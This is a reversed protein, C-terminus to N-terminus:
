LVDTNIESFSEVILDAQSLIESRYTSTLAICKMGAKKAAQIGYPSDEFVLCEIPKARMMNAAYIFLDPEPKSVYGVDAITFIHGNFLETIGLKKDILNLLENEMSTALCKPYKNLKQYFDLFGPVFYINKINNKFLTNREALLSDISEDLDYIKKIIVIGDYLSKGTLLKKIQDRNYILNRRRLLLQQAKDWAGESNIVIGEMDFILTEIM